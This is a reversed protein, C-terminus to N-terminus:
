RLRRSYRRAGSRLRAAIDRRLAAPGIVEVKGGFGLLWWRLQETDRVTASVRLSEAEADRPEARQDDSLPSELLHRGAGEHFEAVLRVRGGDGFDMAGEELWRDLSFGEPVEVADALMAAREIRHMAITRVDEYDFVRM